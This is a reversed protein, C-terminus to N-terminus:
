LNMTRTFTPAYPQQAHRIQEVHSKRPPRVELWHNPHLVPVSHSRRVDNLRFTPPKHESYPTSGPMFGSHHGTKISISGQRGGPYSPSYNPDKRLVNGLPKLDNFNYSTCGAGSSYSQMLIQWTRSTAEHTETNMGKYSTTQIKNRLAHFPHNWHHRDIHQRWNDDQLNPTGTSIKFNSFGVRAM